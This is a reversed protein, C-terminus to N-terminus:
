SDTSVQEPFGHNAKRLESKLYYDCQNLISLLSHNVYIIAKSNGGYEQWLNSNQSTETRSKLLICEAIDDAQAITPVQQQYQRLLKHMFAHATETWDIAKLYFNRLPSTNANRYSKCATYYERRSINKLYVTLLYAYLLGYKPRLITMFLLRAFRGNGDSFPHIM